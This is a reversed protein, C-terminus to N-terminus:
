NAFYLVVFPFRKRYFFSGNWQIGVTTSLCRWTVTIVVTGDTQGALAQRKIFGSGTEGPGNRARIRLSRRDPLVPNPSGLTELNPDLYPQLDEERIVGDGCGGSLWSKL